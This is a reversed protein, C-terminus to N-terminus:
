SHGLQHPGKGQLVNETMCCHIEDHAMDETSGTNQLQLIDLNLM